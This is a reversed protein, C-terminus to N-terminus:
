QPYDGGREKDEDEEENLSSFSTITKFPSLCRTSGIFYLTHSIEYSNCFQFVFSSFALVLSSIYPKRSLYQYLFAQKDRYATSM